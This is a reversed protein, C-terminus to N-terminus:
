PFPSYLTVRGALSPSLNAPRSFVNHTHTHTHETHSRKMLFIGYGSATVAPGNHRRNDPLNFVASLFPSPPSLLPSLLFSQWFKEYIQLARMCAITHRTYYTDAFMVFGRRERGNSTTEQESFYTRFLRIDLIISSCM